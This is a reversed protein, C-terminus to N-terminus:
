KKILVKQVNKLENNNTLLRNELKKIINSGLMILQRFQLYSNSVVVYDRGSEDTFNIRERPSKKFNFNGARTRVELNMEEIEIKKDDQNVIGDAKLMVKEITHGDLLISEKKRNVLSAKISNDCTPVIRIIKRKATTEIGEIDINEYNIFRIEKVKEKEDNLYVELEIYGDEISHYILANNRIGVLDYDRDYIFLSTPYENTTEIIPEELIDTDAILIEHKNDFFAKEIEIISPTLFETLRKFKNISQSKIEHSNNNKTLYNTENFAIKTLFKHKKHGKRILEIVDLEPYSNNQESYTKYININYLKKNGDVSVYEEGVPFYDVETIGDIGRSIHISESIEEDQITFIDIKKIRKEKECIELELINIEEVDKDINQYILKENRTQVFKFTKDMLKIMELNEVM